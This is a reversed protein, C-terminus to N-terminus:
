PESEPRPETLRHQDINSAAYESRVTLERIDLKMETVDKAFETAWEIHDKFAQENMTQREHDRVIYTTLGVLNVVLLVIVSIVSAKAGNSLKTVEVPTTM